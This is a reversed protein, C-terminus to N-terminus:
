QMTDKSGKRRKERQQKMSSIDVEIKVAGPVLLGHIADDPKPLTMPDALMTLGFVILSFPVTISVKNAM